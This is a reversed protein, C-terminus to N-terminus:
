VGIELRRTNTLMAIKLPVSDKSYSSHKLGKIPKFTATAEQETLPVFSVRTQFLRGGVADVVVAKRALRPRFALTTLFM